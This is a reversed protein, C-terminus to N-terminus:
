IGIPPPIFGVWQSLSTSKIELTENVPYSNISLKGAVLTLNALSKNVNKTTGSVNIRDSFDGDAGFHYYNFIM